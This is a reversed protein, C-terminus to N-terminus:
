LQTKLLEYRYFSGKVDEGKLDKIKYTIPDSYVIKNIVFIERSWNNRYKNEFTKKSVQIRVRDGVNFTPKQVSSMSKKNIFNEHEKRVDIPKMKITTHVTNNYDSVISPLVDVWRFNQNIEFKIKLRENLTRNLREVIASKEVSETHYLKIGYRQLLAEFDKNRFELGKDTHLLNPPNHNNEPALKLIKEFANAVLKGNKKKLPISWVFKSFTDIVNLIYKFGDNEKMYRDMIILDAAWLDDVGLTVIHRKRFKKRVPKFIEHARILKDQVSLDDEPVANKESKIFQSKQTGCIKCRASIRRLGNKTVVIKSEIDPTKRKCKHCHIM